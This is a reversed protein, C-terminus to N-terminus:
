VDEGEIRGWLVWQELHSAQSGEKVPWAGVFSDQTKAVQLTRTWTAWTWPLNSSSHRCQPAQVVELRQELPGVHFPSACQSRGASVHPSSGRGEPGRIMVPALLMEAWVGQSGHFQATGRLAYAALLYSCGQGHFGNRLLSLLMSFLFGM